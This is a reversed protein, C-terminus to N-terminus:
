RGVKLKRTAEKLGDFAATTPCTMVCQGIREVMQRKLESRTRHYIQILVGIRGDPTEKASVISEIGAEAPSGIISSAFGTAVRAATLAWKENEATILVRGVWMYFMEAFTDEVEVGEYRFM